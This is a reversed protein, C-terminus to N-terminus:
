KREQKKLLKFVERQVPMRDQRPHCENYWVRMRGAFEPSVLGILPRTFGHAAYMYWYPLKGRYDESTELIFAVAEEAQAQTPQKKLFDECWLEMAEYFDDHCPHDKTSTGIGFAGNWTTKTKEAKEIGKLYAAYCAKLQEM